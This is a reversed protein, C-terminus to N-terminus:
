MSSLATPDAAEHEEPGEARPDLDVIDMMQRLERRVIGLPVDHGPGGLEQLVFELRILTSGGSLRPQRDDPAIQRDAAIERARTARM